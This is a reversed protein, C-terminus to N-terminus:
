PEYALAKQKYFAELELLEASSMKVTEHHTNVMEEVAEIGILAVMKKYYEAWNGKLTINCNYCQAFVQKEDFLVKINRGPIFHGAQLCGVGFAPYDRGCSICFARDGDLILEDRKADRKRIYISFADWARRKAVKYTVLKPV